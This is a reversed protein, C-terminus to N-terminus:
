LNGGVGFSTNRIAESKILASIKNNVELKLYINQIHNKITLTSIFLEGAM